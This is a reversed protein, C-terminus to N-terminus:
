AAKGKRAPESEELVDCCDIKAAPVAKTQGAHRILVWHGAAEISEVAPTTANPYTCLTGVSNAFGDLARAPNGEAAKSMFPIAIPHTFVIRSFKLEAQRENSKAM